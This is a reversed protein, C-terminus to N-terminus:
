LSDTPEKGNFMLGKIWEPMKNFQEPSIYKGHEIMDINGDIDEYALKRNEVPVNAKDLLNAVAKIDEVTLSKEM